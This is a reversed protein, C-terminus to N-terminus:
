EIVICQICRGFTVAFTCYHQWGADAGGGAVAATAVADAAEADAAAADTARAIIPYHQRTAICIESSDGSHWCAAEMAIIRKM